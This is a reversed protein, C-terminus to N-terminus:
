KSIINGVRMRYEGILVQGKELAVPLNEIKLYTWRLNTFFAGRMTDELRRWLFGREQERTIGLQNMFDSRGIYKIKPQSM